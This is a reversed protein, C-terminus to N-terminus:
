GHFDANRAGTTRRSAHRRARPKPCDHGVLKHCIGRDPSFRAADRWAQSFAELLVSEADSQEPVFRMVFGLLSPAHRDYLVALAREDQRQIAYMLALDDWASLTIPEGVRLPSTLIM